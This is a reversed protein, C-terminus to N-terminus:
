LIQFWNALATSNEISGKFAMVDPPSMNSIKEPPFFDGVVFDGAASWGTAGRHSLPNNRIVPALISSELICHKRCQYVKPPCMEPRTMIDVFKM